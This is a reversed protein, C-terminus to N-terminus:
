RLGAIDIFQTKRKMARSDASKGFNDFGVGILDTRGDAARSARLAHPLYPAGPSIPRLSNNAEHYHYDCFPKGDFVYFTKDPFPKYCTHCNFCDRHYKGKLQGDSSSVAQKEIPLNCRRCKPLYMNKWCKDCLVGRGNEMRIWRKDEIGKSCRMCTLAEQRYRVLGSASSEGSLREKRSMESSRGIAGSITGGRRGIVGGLTSSDRPIAPSTPSLLEDTSTPSRLLAAMAIDFGDEMSNQEGRPLDDDSYASSTVSPSAHVRAPTHSMGRVILADDDSGDSQAYALGGFESEEDESAQRLFSSNADDQTVVKINDGPVVARKQSFKESPSFSSRTPSTPTLPGSTDSLKSHNSPKVPFPISSPKVTASSERGHPPLTASPTPSVSPSPPINPFSRFDQSHHPPSNPFASLSYPVHPAATPSYRTDLPPPNVRGSSTAEPSPPAPVWSAPAESTHPHFHLIPSTAFMAARAAAAFGRRGVGAMGAVGGSKTDIEPGMFHHSSYNSPAPSAPSRSPHNPHSPIRAARLDYASQPAPVLSSQPVSPHRKTPSRADFSPLTRANANSQIRVGGPQPYTPVVNWAVEPLSMGRNVSPLRSATGPYHSTPQRASSAPSFPGQTPSIPIPITTPSFPGPSRVGGRSPAPSPAGRSPVPSPNNLLRTRDYLRLDQPSTSAKKPSRKDIPMPSHLALNPIPSLFITQLTLQPPAPKLDRDSHINSPLSPSSPSPPSPSSSTIPPCVHDSLKDFPVPLNCSSCKVTPLVQSIRSDQQPPNSALQAM